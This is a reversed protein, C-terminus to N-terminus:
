ERSFDIIKDVVSLAAPRHTVIFVTKDTMTRLNALLRVETKEDLSSTAEDLLLVPHGSFIARAIALRQMQGESLGAGREGLVTDLGRDLVAVFEAACAIELAHNLREEQYMEEPDGFAIIERITGSLLQNGQPVYAFLGRLAANLPEEGDKTLVYREGANIPYLCMLLKLLSSKGCGSFGTFAVYEGKHFEMNVNSFVMTTDSIHGESQSSPRYSFSMNRFGMGVFDERYFRLLEDRSIDGDSCDQEYREAEMLREASALMAYYRPLYSTINAFPNQIQAVLQLVAMFTGYSMTGTLIGYGCFAAGFVYAGHMAAGFGVNCLNSFHNRHIRAAKHDAMLKQAREITRQEQAYTLVIMLSGLHEQFFVRLAGDAEQIKKHLRRLIRRFGWTLAVMLIGGPLIIYGFRPELIMLTVIAGAMKVAMGAAGPVIQALGDAVVVTDSTLRNMWEGSHVATVAAYNKKLLVSFLRNKCQNEMTSRTYEELYRNVARLAIQLVVLVTFRVVSIRFRESNGDVACNIIQRLLLAYGIGFVSLTVQALLLLTIHWKRSGTVERLWALESRNKNKKDM